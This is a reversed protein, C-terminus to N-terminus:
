RMLNIKELIDSIKKQFDDTDVYKIKGQHALITLQNLNRSIGRLEKLFDELEEIVIIDKNLAARRLYESMSKDANKAKKEIKKLESKTVRFSLKQTKHEINIV